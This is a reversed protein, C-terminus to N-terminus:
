FSLRAGKGEWYGGSVGIGLDIGISAWAIAARFQDKTGFVHYTERSFGGVHHLEICAATTFLCGCNPPKLPRAHLRCHYLSVCTIILLM